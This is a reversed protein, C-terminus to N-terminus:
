LFGATKDLVFGQNKGKKMLVKGVLLGKQRM